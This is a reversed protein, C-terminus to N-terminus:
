KKMLYEAVAEYAPISTPDIGNNSSLYHSAFRVIVMEAAPDIYIAQGYVGRAMFAGHDNNTHWWMDRYSWGREILFPHDPDNAFAQKESAKDKTSTIEKVAEAPVVQKGNFKGNNRILEGFAAMDRLNLSLGGGAFSAGTPDMQYYADEHAGMPIWILESILDAVDRGTVKQIIWGMLETNITGYAFNKGHEVNSLKTITPMFEYYNQPGKYSAAKFINGAASFTWIEANPDGYDESYKIATTMNLVQRVTAEAFGSDKLEPIINKVIANESIKVVKGNKDPLGTTILMAGLTGTFSKSCSMAAHVGDKTLGGKGEDIAYKEYVIKGKHLIILGDYYNEDLSEAFTMTKSDAPNKSWTKFTLKDINAIDLKEKFVYQKTDAAFVPRTPYFERMHNVSYRLRPFMFFDGTVASLMKEKPPPNGQMWGMKIPDSETINPRVAQAFVFSSCFLSTMVFLSKKLM